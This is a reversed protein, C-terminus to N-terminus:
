FEFRTSFFDHSFKHREENIWKKRCISTIKSCYFVQKWNEWKEINSMEEFQTERLFVLFNLFSIQFILFYIPKNL